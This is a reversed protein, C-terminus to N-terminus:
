TTFSTRTGQAARLPNGRLDRVVGPARHAPRKTQTTSPHNTPIDVVREVAVPQRPAGSPARLDKHSGANPAKGVLRGLVLPADRSPRSPTGTTPPM